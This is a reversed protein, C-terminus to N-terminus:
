AQQKMMRIHPHLILGPLGGDHSTAQHATCPPAPDGIAVVASLLVATTQPRPESVELWSVANSPSVPRCSNAEAATGPTHAKAPRVQKRASESNYWGRHMLQVVRRGKLEPQVARKHARGCLKM